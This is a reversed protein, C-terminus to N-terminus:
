NLNLIIRVAAILLLLIVNVNGGNFCFMNISKKDFCFHLPVNKNKHLHM